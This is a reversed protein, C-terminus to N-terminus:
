KETDVCRGQCYRIFIGSEYLFVERIKNRINDGRYLLEVLDMKKKQHCLIVAARSHYVTWEFFNITSIVLVNRRM